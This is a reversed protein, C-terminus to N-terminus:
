NDVRSNALNPQTPTSPLPGIYLNPGSCPKDGKKYM